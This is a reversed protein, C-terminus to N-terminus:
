NRRRAFMLLLRLIQVLASVVGAVYTLAAAILVRKGRHYESSDLINLEKIEKLARRSANIEVPLTVLQFLLIASEAIIGIWILNLMSFICGIAIAIYGVYSSFNVIPVLAARIRMLVYGVKDQIAHGCEHAAVAVASISAEGYNTQSLNVLKKSPDYHDTLFGEASNVPVNSLGHKDLIMRAADKGLMGRKNKIKSNSNYTFKIFAQAGGSILLAVITLGYYILYDM